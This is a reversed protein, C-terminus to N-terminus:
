PMSVHHYAAAPPPGGARADPHVHPAVAGRVILLIGTLALVAPAAFRLRRRLAHSVASATWWTMALVPLTAAGFVVMALAADLPHADAASATLAAYVLGCPLLGNLAGAALASAVPHTGRHRHAQRVGLGIMRGIRAGLGASASGARLTAMAMLVIGAGISLARGLGGAVVIRGFLGAAAGFTAYAALRGSHYWLFLGMRSTQQRLALMLPGCMAGCHLAGAAGLLAMAALTTM